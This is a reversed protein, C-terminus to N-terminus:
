ICSLINRLIYSYKLLYLAYLSIRTTKWLDRCKKISLKLDYVRFIEQQARLYGLFDTPLWTTLFLTIKLDAETGLSVPRLFFLQFDPQPKIWVNWVNGIAVVICLWPMKLACRCCFFSHHHREACKGTCNLTKM